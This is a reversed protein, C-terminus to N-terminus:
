WFTPASAPRWRCPRATRALAPKVPQGDRAILLPDYGKFLLNM